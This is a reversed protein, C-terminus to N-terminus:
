EARRNWAYIAVKVTTYTNTSAGCETCSVCSGIIQARFGYQTYIKAKGGCFPCSKLEVKSM